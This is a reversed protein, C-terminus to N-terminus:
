GFIKKDLEELMDIYYSILGLGKYWFKKDKADLGFPKLLEVYNEVGTKSLMNLYKDAFNPVTGDMYVQYLSNVLCDAFSYAYVYFPAYFFHGIQSWIYQSDEDVIVYNGLSERMEELWIQNLRETTLEGNKREDHARTEFFHFAIQRVATNLMDNVKSAILALKEKDDDTNRLLSQFTLMEAFVSAVEALTLPTADNLEGQKASMCMHCGHGLEHALTLVDNSKGVFNLFLFPHHTASVPAAFAGSRKGDRPPVDIWNHSFFADATKRLSPSFEEYAKLVTKVSEDWSYKKDASFPLPANRDWYQIKEVGLWKAKLKYFRHALNAYSDRVSSALADLTEQEVSNGLNRAAVPTKYGRKNDETEKDKIIMNYIFTFLYSNEKAVRNLEKGAKERTKPDKDLLLHSLEANNYEKGDVVFKLKASSEEYLRVWAAESTLAKDLLLSELDESLHYKRYKRVRELFPKYYAVKENKLLEEIRNDEIDALELSFFLTYQQSKTFAEIIQQYFATAKQNNMQTSMNLSAFEGLRYSMSALNEAKRLANAFEDPSITGLKGKYDEAFKKSLTDYEELDAQIKPDDIGNYLDSLDWAPLNEKTM